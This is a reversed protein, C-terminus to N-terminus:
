RWLVVALVIVVLAGIGFPGEAQSRIIGLLSLHIRYTKMAHEKASLM